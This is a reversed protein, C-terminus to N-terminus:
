KFVNDTPLSQTKQKVQQESNVYVGSLQNLKQTYEDLIKLMTQSKSNMQKAAEMAEASAEGQWQGCLKRTKQYWLDVQNQMNTKAKAVEQAKNTFQEPTVKIEFDAM